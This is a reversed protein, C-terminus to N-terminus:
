PAEEKNPETAPAQMPFSLVTGSGESLIHETFITSLLISAKERRDLTVSGVFPYAKKNVYASHVHVDVPKEGDHHLVIQLRLDKPAIEAMFKEQVESRLKEFAAGDLHVELKVRNNAQIANLVVLRGPQAVTDKQATVPIKGKMSLFTNMGEELCAPDKLEGFYAKLVETVEAKKEDCTSKGGMDLKLLLPATMTSDPKRAIRYLDSTYIETVMEFDCGSLSLIAVTFGIIKIMLKIRGNKEM